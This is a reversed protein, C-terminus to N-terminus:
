KKNLPYFNYVNIFQGWPGDLRLLVEAGGRLGAGPRQVRLQFPDWRLIALLQQSTGRFQHTAGFIPPLEHQPLTLLSFSHFHHNAM